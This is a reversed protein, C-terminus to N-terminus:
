AAHSTNSVSTIDFANRHIAILPHRVIGILCVAYYAESNRGVSYWATKNKGVEAAPTM